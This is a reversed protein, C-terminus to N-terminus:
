LNIILMELYKLIDMLQENTSELSKEFATRPQEAKNSIDAESIM